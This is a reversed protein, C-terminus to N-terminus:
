GARQARAPKLSRQLAETLSVPTTELLRLLRWEAVRLGRPVRRAAGCLWDPLPADAAAIRGCFELVAPHIYSKRCVAATNRLRSAVEKVIAPVGLRRAGEAPCALRALELAQVSGHWTRFDKATFRTGAGAADHLYDNVDASGVQRVRGDGDDYGFLAQGPLEQCRRVLRAVRPDDLRVDHEVGSKGRFSLRLVSGRVGAHRNRLTTLGYSGNSQAYEDNGVRVFTTDLLRVLAALVGDRTPAGRAAALDRTVRARVRPLARGFEALRAFKDDDRHVRWHAHYRYQKRGRADRGTAQLHGDARPCIWVASYAPPIALARIRALETEDRLWRGAADRYAFGTGRRVRRIGPMADSVYTLGPPLEPEGAASSSSACGAPPAPDDDRRM